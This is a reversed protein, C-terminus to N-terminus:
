GRDFAVNEAILKFDAFTYPNTRYMKLRLDQRITEDHRERPFKFGHGIIRWIQVLEEVSRDKGFLDLSIPAPSAPNSNKIHIAITRAFEENMDKGIDLQLGGALGKPSYRRSYIVLKDVPVDNAIFNKRGRSPSIISVTGSSSM